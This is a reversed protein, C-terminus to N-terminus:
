RKSSEQLKYVGSLSELNRCLQSTLPIVLKPLGRELYPLSETILAIWHRHMKANHHQKLATQVATLLLGQCSLRESKLFGMASNPSQFKLHRFEWEGDDSAATELSSDRLPFLHDELVIITLVLKLLQIQFTQAVETLLEPHADQIITKDKDALSSKSKRAGYVSALLCYVVAKQVKCRVLLDSIFTALGRGGNKVVDVLEFLVHQLVEMSATQVDRNGLADRERARGDQPYYSRMFYVCTLILVELYTTSRFSLLAEQELQTYFDWGTICRKHRALLQQLKILQPTNTSSINTSSMACVFQRPCTHLISKLRALVHLIQEEDYVQVYLLIHQQLPHLSTLKSEPLLRIRKVDFAQCYEQPYRWTIESDSTPETEMGSMVGELDDLMFEESGKVPSTPAATGGKARIYGKTSHHTSAPPSSTPPARLVSASDSEDIEKEEVNAIVKDVLAYLISRVADEISEDVEENYVYSPEDYGDSVSLDDTSGEGSGRVPTATDSGSDTKRDAAMKGKTSISLKSKDGVSTGSSKRRESSGEANKSTPASADSDSDSFSAAHAGMMMPNITVSLPKHHFDPPQSFRLGLNSRTVFNMKEDVSTCAFIPDQKGANMVFKQEGDKLVYFRVDGDVNSISYIRNEIGDLHQERERLEEEMQKRRMADAGLFQVSARATAPHLLVLLIPELLRAIDGRNIADLLWSQTTSRIMSSPHEM